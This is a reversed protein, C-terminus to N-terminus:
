RTLSDLNVVLLYQISLYGRICSGISKYSLSTVYPELEIFYQHQFTNPFAVILQISQHMAVKELGVLVNNPDMIM